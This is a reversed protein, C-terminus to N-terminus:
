TLKNADAPDHVKLSHHILHCSACWGIIETSRLVPLPKESYVLFLVM